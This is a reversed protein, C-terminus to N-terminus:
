NSDASATPESGATDAAHIDLEGSEVLWIGTSVGFAVLGFGLVGAGLDIGSGVGQALSLCGFTMGGALVGSVMGGDQQRGWLLAPYRLTLATALTYIGFIGVLLVGSANQTAVGGTVGAALLLASAFRTTRNM